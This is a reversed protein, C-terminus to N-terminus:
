RARILEKGFLFVAPVVAKLVMSKWMQDKEVELRTKETM